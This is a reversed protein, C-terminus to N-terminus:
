YFVWGLVVIFLPAVVCAVFLAIGIGQWVEKTEQKM